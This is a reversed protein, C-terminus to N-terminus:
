NKTKENYLRCEVMGDEGAHQLIKNLAGLFEQRDEEHVLTMINEMAIDNDGELGITESTKHDLYVRNDIVEWLGLGSANIVDLLAITRNSFLGDIQM